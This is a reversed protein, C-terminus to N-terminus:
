LKGMVSYFPDFVWQIIRRRDLWVDADLLMGSQLNLEQRYAKISQESLAVTVRYVPEDLQVPLTTEGPTILTKAIEKVRGHASGFRQYPFAQYRLAVRQGAEIFGIARSPVLLQAELETQVPLITLLPAGPGATQGREALIATVTGAAPASIVIRRRSEYETLQQSLAEIDRQIAARRNAAQLDYGALERRLEDLNRVLTIRDRQLVELRGQQELAQEIKERSQLEAVFRRAALDRYRAAIEEASALRQTQTNLAADLQTLESEFGRLREQLNHRQDADIEGQNLLATKFSDRRENLSAIIAAQAAPTEPSGHDTSLVFLTEGQKVTQGETVQKDVLTGTVPAYVKILGKDPTLYGTVHAKRTYQGFCAFVILAAMVLVAVITFVYSTPPSSVIVDGLTRERQANLAEERFLRRLM